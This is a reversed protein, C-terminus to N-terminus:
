ILATSEQPVNEKAKFYTFTINIDNVWGILKIELYM